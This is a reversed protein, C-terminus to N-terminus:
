APREFIRINEEGVTTLLDHILDDCYATTHNPFEMTLSQKRGEVVITFRDSGPYSTLIGHLKRIRRRDKEDDGSRQYYVMLWREAQTEPAPHLDDVIVIEDSGNWTTEGNPVPEAVVQPEVVPTPVAAAGQTAPAVAQVAAPEPAPESKPLEGTEEDYLPPEDDLWPPPADQL